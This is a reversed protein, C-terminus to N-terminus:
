QLKGNISYQAGDNQYINVIQWGGSDNNIFVGFGDTITASPALLIYPDNNPPTDPSKNYIVGTGAYFVDGGANGVYDNEAKKNYTGSPVGGSGVIVVSATSAVPIGSPAPASPTGSLANSISGDGISNVARIRV